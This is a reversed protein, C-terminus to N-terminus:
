IFGDVFITGISAREMVNAAAVLTPHINRDTAMELVCAASAADVIDGYFAEKESTQICVNPGKGCQSLCGSSEVEITPPCLTKM